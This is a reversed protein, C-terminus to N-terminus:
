RSLMRVRDVSAERWASDAPRRSARRRFNFQRRQRSPIMLLRDAGIKYATLFGGYVCGTDIAAVVARGGPGRLILPRALPKHGVILLGDRGDYNWWWDYEDAASKITMRMRQPTRRFGLEPDVGAHVATWVPNRGRIFPTRMARRLLDLADDLLDADALIDVMEALRPPLGETRGDVGARRIAALAREEHNGCVIDIKVGARQRALIEEVVLDPRPGKTLLDGILVIRCDRGWKQLRDFMRQLEEGCGHIDGVVVTDRMRTPYQHRHWNSSEWCCQNM